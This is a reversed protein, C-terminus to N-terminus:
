EGEKNLYERLRKVQDRGLDEVFIKGSELDEILGILEHKGRKIRRKEEDTMDRNIINMNKRQESTPYTFKLQFNNERVQNFEEVLKEMENGFGLVRVWAKSRTIATFLQNRVTALNGFSSYCDQANIIYVMGAENGKARYIGTFTVSDMEANSFVDPSTDVGALHTNINREFLSARIPGVVKRTSLPDPNIVIIDDPLLEEKELNDAIANAVWEDQEQQSGFCHFQILDDISSHAELFNPSSEETRALTVECGDDLDGDIAVYGVDLWLSKQDFIQVLGTGIEPDSKRYIGFGLAHATALVPRSNRYCKELIIDQKPKGIQPTSFRVRPTGDPKKGFLEEPSPMSQSNLVQLEDYAYVLRKEDNLLEYCLRLFAPPFDQAEDVLIADYIPIPTKMESM